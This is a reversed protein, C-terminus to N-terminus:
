GSRTSQSGADARLDALVESAHADADTVDYVHAIVGKPDILYSVRYPMDDWPEGAPRVVDYATSVARDPDSLLRFGFSHEEAFRQNESPTDYSVGAVICDLSAFDAAADRLSRGEKTCTPTSAKPFWWLLLWKGAAEALSFTAGRETRLAFRPAADGPALTM